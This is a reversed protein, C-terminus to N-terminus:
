KLGDRSTAVQVRLAKAADHMHTVLGCSKIKAQTAKTAILDILAAVDIALQALEDFTTVKSPDITTDGGEGESKGTGANPARKKPAAKLDCQEKIWKWASKTANYIRNMEDTREASKTSYLTERSARAETATAGLKGYSLEPWTDYFIVRLKEIMDASDATLGLACIHDIVARSGTFQAKIAKRFAGVDLASQDVPQESPKTVPALLAAQEAPTYPAGPKISHDLAVVSKSSLVDDNDITITKAKNAM